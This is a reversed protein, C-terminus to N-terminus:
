WLISCEGSIEGKGGGIYAHECTRRHADLPTSCIVHVAFCQSGYLSALHNPFYSLAPVPRLMCQKSLWSVPFDGRRPGHLSHLQLPHRPGVALRRSPQAPLSSSRGLDSCLHGAAPHRTCNVRFVSRTLLSLKDQCLTQGTEAATSPRTHEQAHACPLTDNKTCTYVACPSSCNGGHRM